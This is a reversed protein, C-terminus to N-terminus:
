ELGCFFKQQPLMNHQLTELLVVDGKKQKMTTSNRMENPKWREEGLKFVLISLIKKRMFKSLLCIPLGLDWWVLLCNEFIMKCFDPCCYSSMFRKYEANYEAIIVVICELTWEILHILKLVTYLFAQNPHCKVCM